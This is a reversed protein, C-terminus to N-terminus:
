PERLLILLSGTGPGLRRAVLRSSTLSDRGSVVCEHADADVCDFDGEGTGACYVVAAVGAREFAGCSAM